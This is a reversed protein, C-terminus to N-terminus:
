EKFMKETLLDLLQRFALIGYKKEKNPHLIDDAQELESRLIKISEELSLYNNVWAFLFLAEIQDAVISKKGKLQLYKALVSLRYAEALIQDSVKTGTLRGTALTKSVSFIFNVLSDGLKASSKHKKELLLITELDKISSSPFLSRLENKLFIFM